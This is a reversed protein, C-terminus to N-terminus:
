DRSRRRASGSRRRRGVSCRLLRGSPYRNPRLLQESAHGRESTDATSRDRTGAAAFGPRRPVYGGDPCCYCAWLVCYFLAHQEDEGVATTPTAGRKWLRPRARARSSIIIDGHHNRQDHLWDGDSRLNARGNRRRSPLFSDAARWETQRSGFSPSGPGGTVTLAQM